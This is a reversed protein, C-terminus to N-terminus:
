ARVGEAAVQPQPKLLSGIVMALAVIVYAAIGCTTDHNRIWQTWPGYKQLILVSM